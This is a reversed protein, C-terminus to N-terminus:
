APFSGGTDYQFKQVESIQCIAESILYELVM